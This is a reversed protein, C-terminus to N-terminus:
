LEVSYILAEVQKLLDRKKMNPKYVYGFLTIIKGTKENFVTYSKFPGGMFDNEVKWMGTIEVAFGAPFDEVITKVPPVFENDTTMYSEFVAGPVNEKLARNTRAMISELSFQATDRYDESIIIISQSLDIGEKRIWVFGDLNKALYFDKPIVIKIGTSKHIKTVAETNQVPRFVNMIRERDSQNFANIFTRKNKSVIEVFDKSSPAVIKYVRQPASWLDESTEIRAKKVSPDIEVIFLNHHKKFLDSFSKRQVHSLRFIPESQPLGYQDKGFTERIVKGIGNDWQKESEIVVLVESTNGISRPKSNENQKNCGGLAFVVFVVLLLSTLKKTM